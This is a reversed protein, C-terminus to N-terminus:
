WTKVHCFVSHCFFSPLERLGKKNHHRNIWSLEPRMIYDSRLLEVKWINWCIFKTPIHSKQSNYYFLIDKFEDDTMEALAIILPHLDGKSLLCSRQMPLGGFPELSAVPISVSLLWFFQSSNVMVAAAVRFHIACQDLYFRFMYELNDDMELITYPKQKSEDSVSIIKIFIAQDLFLFKGM